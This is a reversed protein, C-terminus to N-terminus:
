ANPPKEKQLADKIHRQLVATCHECLQLKWFKLEGVHIEAQHVNWSAHSLMCRQCIAKM